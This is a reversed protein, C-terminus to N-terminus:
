PGSGPAFDGTMSSVLWRGSGNRIMTVNYRMVNVPSATAWGGNDQQQQFKAWSTVEARLTATDGSVAVSDFIVKSVGSGLNRFEPDAEADVANTLGTQEHRAQAPTFYRSLAAKGDRLQANRVAQSAAPATLRASAETNATTAYLSPPPAQMEQDARIASTFATEVASTQSSDSGIISQILSQSGSAQPIFAFTSGAATAVLIGGVLWRGRNGLTRM